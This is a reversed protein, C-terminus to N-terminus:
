SRPAAPLLGKGTTICALLLMRFLAEGLLSQQFLRPSLLLRATARSDLPNFFRRLLERQGPDLRAGHVVRFHEIQAFMIHVWNTDRLFHLIARYRGFGAGMGIVNAGHQRYRVTPHRDYVVRGFAAVVLYLWWDHFHIQAADAGICGLRLAAPNMAATCGTMINQALANAFCPQRKYEPSLGKSRLQADVIELRSCYLMPTAGGDKLAAWAREIKGGLWVDDQDCLMIMEADRPAHEMLWLFSRAYGVNPGLIVIVRPDGVEEIRQVTADTSGDDRVVIRGEPPLQDLISRLQEGVFREGQYTSMLVVVRM